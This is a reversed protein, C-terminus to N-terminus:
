WQHVKVEKNSTQNIKALSREDLM